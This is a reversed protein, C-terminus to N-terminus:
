FAVVLLLKKWSAFRGRKLEGRKIAAAIACGDERGPTCGRWRCQEALAEIDACADARPLHRM